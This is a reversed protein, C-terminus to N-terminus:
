RLADRIVILGRALGEIDEIGYLAALLPLAAWDLDGMARWVM